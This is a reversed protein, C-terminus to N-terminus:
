KSAITELCQPFCDYDGKKDYPFYYYNKAADCDERNLDSVIEFASSCVQSNASQTSKILFVLM